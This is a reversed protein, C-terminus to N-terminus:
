AHPAFLSAVHGLTELPGCIDHPCGADFKLVVALRGSSAADQVCTRLSYLLPHTWIMERNERGKPTFQSEVRDRTHTERETAKAVVFNCISYHILRNFVALSVWGDFWFHVAQSVKAFGHPYGYPELRVRVAVRPIIGLPRLIARGLQHREGLHLSGLLAYLHLILKSIADARRAQILEIGGCPYNQLRPITDAGSKARIQQPLTLIFTAFLIGRKM